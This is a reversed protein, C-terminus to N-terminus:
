GCHVDKGPFVYGSERRQGSASTGPVHGTLARHLRLSASRNNAHDTRGRSPRWGISMDTADTSRLYRCRRAQRRAEDM